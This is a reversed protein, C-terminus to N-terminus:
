KWIQDEELRDFIDLMLVGVGNVKSFKKRDMEMVERLSIRHYKGHEYTITEVNRGARFYRLVANLFTDAAHTNNSCRYVIAIVEPDFVRRMCEERKFINHVAGKSMGVELGIQTYNKGEFKKMRYIRDFPTRDIM